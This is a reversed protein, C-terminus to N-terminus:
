MVQFIFKNWQWLLSYIIQKRGFSSTTQLKELCTARQNLFQVVDAHEFPIEEMEEKSKWKQKNAM